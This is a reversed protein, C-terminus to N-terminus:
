SNSALLSFATKIVKNEGVSIQNRLQKARRAKGTFELYAVQCHQWLSTQAIGPVPHRLWQGISFGHSIAFEVVEFLEQQSM